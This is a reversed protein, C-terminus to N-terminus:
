KAPASREASPPTRRRERFVRQRRQVSEKAAEVSAAAELKGAAREAWRLDVAWAQILDDKLRSNAADPLPCPRVAQYPRRAKPGVSRRCALLALAVQRRRVQAAPSRHGRLRVAWHPGRRGAVPRQLVMPRRPLVLRHGVGGPKKAVFAPRAPEAPGVPLPRGGLRDPHRAM